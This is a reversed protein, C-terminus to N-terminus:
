EGVGVCVRIVCACKHSYTYVRVCERLRLIDQVCAQDPIAYFRKSRALDLCDLGRGQPFVGPYALGGVLWYHEPLKCSHHWCAGYTRIKLEPRRVRSDPM